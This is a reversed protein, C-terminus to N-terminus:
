SNLLEDVGAPEVGEPLVADAVPSGWGIDVGGPLDRAGSLVINRIASHVTNSEDILGADQLVQKNMGFPKYTADRCLLVLDYFAIPKSTLLESVNAMTAFVVVEPEERGNKLKIMNM